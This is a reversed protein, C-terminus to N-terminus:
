IWPTIDLSQNFKISSDFLLPRFKYIEAIAGLCGTLKHASTYHNFLFDKDNLTPITYDLYKIIAQTIEKIRYGNLQNECRLLSFIADLDICYSVNNDWLGLENQLNLTSDIVKKPYPISHNMFKYIWYYHIAGGLEHKTLRKKLKHNWGIRWFGVDPDARRDLWEFYWDFFNIHPYIDPGLTAIIAGIGGGRHSGPWIFLGWEPGRKLWKEVRKRTDLKNIFKFYYKPTSNLLKLASVAFATAHEWQGTLPSRFRYNFYRDKFWGTKPDQYSQIKKIWADKNEIKHSDIYNEIKNPIFLNFVMDCIGYLSPKKNGRILSFDGAINNSKFSEIWCFLHDYLGDLQYKKKM